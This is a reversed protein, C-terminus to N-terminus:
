HEATEREEFVYTYFGTARPEGGAKKIATTVQGRHYASHDFVHTLVAGVSLWSAVGRTNKYAIIESFSEDRLDSFYIIWKKGLEDLKGRCEAPPLEPWATTFRTLDERLLRALWIDESFLIHSLRSLATPDIPPIAELDEILRQTAWQDFVQLRKFHDVLSSNFEM